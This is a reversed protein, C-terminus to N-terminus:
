HSMVRIHRRRPSTMQGTWTADCHHTGEAIVDNNMHTVDCLCTGEAIVDNHGQKIDDWTQEEIVDSDKRHSTVPATVDYAHGRQLSTM